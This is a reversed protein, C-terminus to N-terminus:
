GAFANLARLPIGAWDPRYDLEHRVDYLAKEVEFLQLLPQVDQLSEYLGGARAIEDYAALFVQRAQQEWQELLPAWKDCEHASELACQQLAAQRAYGFSRLMGAVDTLPSHKARREALTRGPEGEFDVIIFDNHQLLVQGLDYNGHRRAKIARPAATVASEIWGLLRARLALVRQADTTVSSPLHSARSALRELASEADARVQLRWTAIDNATIPEPAFAPDSTPSSLACHLEATRTALTKVLALYLGHADARLATGTRRDEIFRALYSVTYDWGDGQNAAYAQLVEPKEVPGSHPRLPVGMVRPLVHFHLHFVTQGGAPENFQHLTLGDAKMGIKAARAVTQVRSMFPGLAEPPM